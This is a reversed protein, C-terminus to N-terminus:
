LSRPTGGGGGWGGGLLWLMVTSHWCLEPMSLYHSGAADRSGAAYFPQLVWVFRGPSQKLGVGDPQLASLSWSPRGGKSPKSLLVNCLGMVFCFLLVGCRAAERGGAKASGVAPLLRLNAAQKNHCNDMASLIESGHTACLHTVAPM